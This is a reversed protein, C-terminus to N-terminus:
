ATMARPPTRCGTSRRPSPRSRPRSDWRTTPAGLDLDITKPVGVINMGKEHLRHATRMSGDGGVWILGDLGLAHYNEVLRDSVDIEVRQGDREVVYNFPDSKNSTGLITGGRALIDEVDDITLWHNGLPRHYDLDILGHTADEIGLVDWRRRLAALVVARILANLGPCDGGATMIGIRRTTM